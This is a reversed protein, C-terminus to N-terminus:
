WILPKIQTARRHAGDELVKAQVLAGSVEDAMRQRQLLRLRVQVLRTRKEASNKRCELVRAHRKCRVREM